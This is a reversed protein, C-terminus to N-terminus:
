LSESTFLPCLSLLVMAILPTVGCAQNGNTEIAALLLNNCGRHSREKIGDSLM